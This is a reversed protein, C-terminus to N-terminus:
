ALLTCPSSDDPYTFAVPQGVKVRRPPHKAHIRCGANGADAGTAASGEPHCRHRSGGAALGLSQWFFDRRLAQGVM